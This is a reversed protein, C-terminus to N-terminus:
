ISLSTFPNEQFELCCFKTFINENQEPEWSALLIDQNGRLKGLFVMERNSQSVLSMGLSVTNDYNAAFM